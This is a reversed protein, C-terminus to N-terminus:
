SHVTRHLHRFAYARVTDSIADFIRDEPNIFKMRMGGTLVGSEGCRAAVGYISKVTRCEICAAFVISRGAEALFLRRRHVVRCENEIWIAVVYLGDKTAVLSRVSGKHGLWEM